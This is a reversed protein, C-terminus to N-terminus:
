TTVVLEMPPVVCQTVEAYTFNNTVMTNWWIDGVHFGVLFGRGRDIETKLDIYRGFKSLKLATPAEKTWDRPNFPTIDDDRAAGSGNYDNLSTFPWWDYGTSGYFPTGPITYPFRGREFREPILSSATSHSMQFGLESTRATAVEKYEIDAYTGTGSGPPSINGRLFYAFPQGYSQGTYRQGVRGERPIIRETIDGGSSVGYWGVFARANTTYMTVGVRKVYAWSVVDDGVNWNTYGGVASGYAKYRLPSPTLNFDGTPKLQRADIEDKTTPMLHFRVYRPPDKLGPKSSDTILKAAIERLSKIYQNSRAAEMGMPQVTQYDFAGIDIIQHINETWGGNFGAIDKRESYGRPLSFGPQMKGIGYPKGTRTPSYSAYGSSNATVFATAARWLGLNNIIQSGGHFYQHAKWQPSGNLVDRYGRFQQTGQYDSFSRTDGPFLPMSNNPSPTQNMGTLPEWWGGLSNNYYGDADDDRSIWRGNYKHYESISVNSSNGGFEGRIEEGLSIQRRNTGLFDSNITM